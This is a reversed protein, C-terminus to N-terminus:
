ADRAVHLRWLEDFANSVDAVSIRKLCDRSSCESKFCPSCGMEASVRVHRHGLPRWKVPHDRGSLIAVCPTGVAAALHMGGTDNSVVAKARALVGFFQRISTKGALNLCQGSGECEAVEGCITHEGRGGTLVVEAGYEARIHRALSGFREPMWRKLPLKAGPHIVVFGAGNLGYQGLLRDTERRLQELGPWAFEMQAWSAQGGPVLCLLRESEPLVLRSAAPSSRVWQQPLSPLWFGGVHPCGITKGFLMDRLLAWARRGGGASSLSVFLDFRRKRLDRALALRPSAGRPRAHYLVFDDMMGTGELVDVASPSGDRGPSTLLTLAAAPYLRRLAVLAPLAVVTDGINGPRHILVREADRPWNGGVQGFLLAREGHLLLNLGLRLSKGAAPHVKSRESESVSM